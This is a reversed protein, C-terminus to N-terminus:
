VFYQCIFYWCPMLFIYVVNLQTYGLQRPHGLLLFSCIYCWILLNFSFFWRVMELPATSKVKIFKFVKMSFVTELNFIIKFVLIWLFGFSYFGLLPFILLMEKLILSSVLIGAVMLEVTNSSRPLETLYSFSFSILSMFSSLPYYFETNAPSMIAVYSLWFFEYAIISM